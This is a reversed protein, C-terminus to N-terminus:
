SPIHKNIAGQGFEKALNMFPENFIAFKIVSHNKNSTSSENAHYTKLHKKFYDAKHTGICFIVQHRYSNKRYKRHTNNIYGDAVYRGLLWAEEDTIAKHNIKDDPLAVCVLDGHKIDKVPIWKPDDFSHGVHRNRRKRVLIPHNGTVHLEFNGSAKLDYIDKTFHIMKDVVMHYKHDISLVM